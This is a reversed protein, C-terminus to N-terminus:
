TQLFAIALCKASQRPIATQATPRECKSMRLRAIRRHYRAVAACAIRERIGNSFERQGIKLLGLAVMARQLRRGPTAPDRDGLLSSRFPRRRCIRAAEPCAVMQLFTRDESALDTVLSTSSSYEQVRDHTHKQRGAM